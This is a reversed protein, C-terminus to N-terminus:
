ARFRNSANVEIPVKCKPCPKTYASVWNESFAQELKKLQKKGYKRELYEKEKKTGTVYQEYLFEAEFERVACPEVGHYLLKCFTCFAYRCASCEGLKEKPDSLLVPQGCSIRPCPTVDSMSDLGRNLLITDYREFLEPGVLTKM